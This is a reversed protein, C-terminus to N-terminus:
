RHMRSRQPKVIQEQRLQIVGFGQCLPQTNRQLREPPERDTRWTTTMGIQLALVICKAEKGLAAAAAPQDFCRPRPQLCQLSSDEITKQVCTRHVLCAVAESTISRYQRMRAHM